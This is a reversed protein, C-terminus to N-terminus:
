TGASFDLTARLSFTMGFYNCNQQHAEDMGDAGGVPLSRHTSGSWVQQFPLISGSPTSAVLLTYARKEDKAVIDVQKAGREHYTSSNGTLVHRAKAPIDYEKMLYVARFFARECVEPANEPIHAAARTGKRHSWDLKSQLFARVYHESVKFTKLLDPKESKIIALMLSRALSVSVPLGSRRLDKLKATIKEVVRPYAKLIGVRGSRALQHHRAVNQKTAESWGRGGPAFWHHVTGRNLRGFLEPQDRKLVKVIENASWLTKHAAKDIHVWLFPHYWNTHKQKGHVAGGLKGNRNARWQSGPRSTEVLDTLEKSTGEDRVEGLILKKSTSGSTSDKRNARSAAREKQTKARHKRQRERAADKQKQAKAERKQEEDQMVEKRMEELERANRQIQKLEVPELDSDSSSDISIPSMNDHTQEALPDKSRVFSVSGTAKDSDSDSDCDSDDLVTIEADKQQAEEDDRKTRKTEVLMSSAKRKIRNERVPIRAGADQAARVLVDVRERVLEREAPSIDKVAQKFLGIVGNLNKGRERLQLRAGDRNKHTEFGVEFARNFAFWTGEEEVLEQDLGFHYTSEHAPLEPLSDPLHKLLEALYDIRRILQIPPGPKHPPKPAM